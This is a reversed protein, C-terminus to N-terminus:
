TCKEIIVKPIWLDKSNKTRYPQLITKPIWVQRIQRNRRVRRHGITSHKYVKQDRVEVGIGIEVKKHPTPIFTRIVEDKEKKLTENEEELHIVKLKLNEVEQHFM